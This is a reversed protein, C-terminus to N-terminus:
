VKLIPVGKISEVDISRDEEIPKQDIQKAFNTSSDLGSGTFASLLKGFSFFASPDLFM